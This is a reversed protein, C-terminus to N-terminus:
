RCEETEAGNNSVTSVRHDQGSQNRAESKAVDLAQSISEASKYLSNLKCFDELDKLVCVLWNSTM